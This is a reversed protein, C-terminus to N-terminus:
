GRLAAVTLADGGQEEFAPAFSAVYRSEALTRRVASKMAGSGHGHLVFVCDRGARMADDLFADLRALGEEVRLGRLDVTNSDSRLAHEISSDAATDATALTALREGGRRGAAKGRPAAGGSQDPANAVIELDGARARLTMAGALVEFEGARETVIDGVVGIGLLRVRDGVRPARTPAAAVAADQRTARRAQGLAERAKAAELRSPNERLARLAERVEEEARRLRDLFAQAERRELERARGAMRLERESVARERAAVASALASAQELAAAAREREGDLAAIADHLARENEDMLERAREVLAEDLGARLAAALAHSEGAAGEVLRYTPRGERYELAAVRVRPDSAAMTKVPAYHTTVVVKAGRDAFREVLARALPGGQAPDTGAAIEDLLVLSSPGAVELMAGLTALHASFSSLGEHVTQMDGIDAVVNEFLDMRSGEAVPLFCGARVLLACLGVTKLAITKGGANPGTLVLVPRAADLRLDNAVVAGRGAALVPHRARGLDVVGERAVEPRTADLRLALAARAAAVDVDAAADLAAAIADAHAALRECLEARIRREEAVLDAEAIRKENGIPVVEAPELFVTQGTRSADHVIGLGLNKAQAKIPLVFRGDRESVFRDQLLDAYEPSDLLGDLVSQIRRALRGIRGRLEALAPYTQESLDGREDFAAAFAGVLRRDPAIASALAVLAPASQRHAAVFAELDALAALTRRAARLEDLDLVEGRSARRVDSAIDEIGDRPPLGSRAEVIALLEGVVDFSREIAATSSELALEEIARKGAATRAGAALQGVLFPWDLAELTRVALDM